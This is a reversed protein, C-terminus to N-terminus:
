EKKFLLVIAIDRMGFQHFLKSIEKIDTMGTDLMLLEDPISQFSVEKVSMLKAKGFALGQLEIIFKEGILRRYYQYKETSHSRITTFVNGPNGEIKQNWNHSFKIINM